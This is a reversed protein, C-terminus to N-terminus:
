SVTTNGASDDAEEAPIPYRRLFRILVVLGVLLILVGLTFVQLWAPADLLHGGAFLLITLVAYAYLRRLGTLLAVGGFSVAAIAGLVLMHYERLWASFAPPIVDYVAFAVAGLLFCLFLAIGVGLIILMPTRSRQPSFRVYGMRPITISKKAAAYIPVYLAPLVGGMWAMDTLIVCGIFLAGLGILIDLLGDEHYSLYARRELEKLDIRQTM